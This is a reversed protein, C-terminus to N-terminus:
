NSLIIAVPWFREIYSLDGGFYSSDSASKFFLFSFALNIEILM